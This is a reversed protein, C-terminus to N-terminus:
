TRRQRLIAQRAQLRPLTLLPLNKPRRKKARPEFRGPRDPLRLAGISSLLHTTLCELNRPDAGSFLPQLNTLLRKAGSFSLVRPIVQTLLASANMAWRVLNYALTYVAIEKEIMESSKCRLVDMELTAKIVRFDVEINWRLAYLRDLAPASVYAPELLTSVIVRGDVETERMRLVPPCDAYEEESMWLPKKPRMWEVIHDKKGLAQGQEFDSSRCGHQAMVVDAGRSQIAHILWWTALLADALVLDTPRIKDLLARLVTQEGSGKGRLATVQYGLVAGSALGILAGIRAMPFGLGATQRGSQPFKAQNSPTDPMSVSTGDFLKVSRGQWRWAKPALVELRESLLHSLDGALAIPLRQRAECYAATNLSAPSARAGVRESLHRVVADQCSRGGSLVQGVFLSLTKLPPYVRHRSALVHRDVAACIDLESLAAGFAGRGHQGFQQRLLQASEFHKSKSDQM